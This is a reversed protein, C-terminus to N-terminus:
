MVSHTEARGKLQRQECFAIAFPTTAYKKKKCFGEVDNKESTKECFRWRFCTAWLAIKHRNLKLLRCSIKYIDLSAQM